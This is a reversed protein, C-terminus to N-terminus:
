EAVVLLLFDELREVGRELRGSKLRPLGPALPDLIAAALDGERRKALFCWDGLLLVPVRIEGLALDDLGVQAHLQGLQRNIHAPRSRDVDRLFTDVFRVGELLQAVCAPDRELLHHEDAVRDERAAVVIRCLLEPQLRHAYLIRVARESRNGSDDSAELLSSRREVRSCIVHVDM